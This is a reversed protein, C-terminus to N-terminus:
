PNSLTVKIKAQNKCKVMKKKLKNIYRRFDNTIWPLNGHKQVKEPINESLTKSLSTKFDNWLQEVTGSDKEHLIKEHLQTIDQNIQVWNAKSFQLVKRPKAHWRRLSTVCESLTM